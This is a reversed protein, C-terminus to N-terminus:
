KKVVKKASTTGDTYTVKQIFIGKGGSVKQGALNYLETKAVEKASETESIATETDSDEPTISTVTLYSLEVSLCSKIPLTFTGSSPTLTYTNSISNGTVSGTYSTTVVIESSSNYTVVATVETGDLDANFLNWDDIIPSSTYTVDSTVVYNDARVNATKGAADTVVVYYNDWNSRSVASNNHNTFVITATEGQPITINQSAADWWGTSYDEAGITSTTVTEETSGVTISEIELYCCDVTLFATISEETLATSTYYSYEIATKSESGTYTAKTEIIGDSDYEITLTVKANNLDKCFVGWDFNSSRNDEVFYTGWGWNDARQVFYEAYGNSAPDSYEYGMNAVALVWNNYVKPSTAAGNYNTFVFTSTGDEASITSTNSKAGLYYTSFDTNGVTVQANASGAVLAVAATFLTYLKKM